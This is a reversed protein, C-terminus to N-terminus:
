FSKIFLDEVKNMESIGLTQLTAAGLRTLTEVHHGTFLLSAACPEKDSVARRFSDGASRHAYKRRVIMDICQIAFGCKKTLKGSLFFIM